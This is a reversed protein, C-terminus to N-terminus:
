LLLYLEPRRSYIAQLHLIALILVLVYIESALITPNIKCLGDM